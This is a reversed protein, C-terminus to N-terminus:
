RRNYGDRKSAYSRHCDVLVNLSRRWSRTILDDRATLISSSFAVKSTHKRRFAQRILRAGNAGSCSSLWHLRAALLNCTTSTPCAPTRLGPMHLIHPLRQAVPRRQTETAGAGCRLERFIPRFYNSLQSSLPCSTATHVTQIRSDATM